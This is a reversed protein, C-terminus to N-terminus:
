TIQMECWPAQVWLRPARMNSGMKLSGCKTRLTVGSGSVLGAAEERPTCRTAADITRKLVNLLM